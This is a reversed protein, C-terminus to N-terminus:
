RATKGESIKLARSLKEWILESLEVAPLSGDFVLWRRPEARALKLYGERVRRHFAIEESEFRDKERDRKRLLGKEVPLDLLVIIDPKLGDTGIDNIQRILDISLGRGYGQYAVTSDTYRDTIVMVAAKLNPRIVEEVLQCRSAAFLMLETLPFVRDKRSRKLIRRVEKGIGTGGPEHTLLVRTGARVLRRRLIRTQTSKGSGEIGEFAVFLSM